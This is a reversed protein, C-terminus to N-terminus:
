GSQTLVKVWISVGSTAVRMCFEGKQYVWFLASVQLKQIKIDFIWKLTDWAGMFTALSLNSM